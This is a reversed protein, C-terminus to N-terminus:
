RGITTSALSRRDGTTAEALLTLRGAKPKLAAAAMAAPRIVFTATGDASITVRRAAIIRSRLGLTRAKVAAILLRVSTPRSAPGELRLALGHAAFGALSPLAAPMSLKLPRLAARLSAIQTEARSLSGNTEALEGASAGLASTLSDISARLPATAEEIAASPKTLVVSTVDSVYRGGATDGPVVLRPGQGALSAGDQTVALLISKNEFSPDLEGYGVLAQYGDSATVSVYHRLKDNKVAPDLKPVASALVDRLRPGTFVHSEPAGAASYTVTVTQQAPMAALDAVSLRLPPQRVNGTVAFSGPALARTADDRDQAPVGSVSVAMASVIATMVIVLTRLRGRRM